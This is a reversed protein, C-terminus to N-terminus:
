ENIGINIITVGEGMLIVCSEQTHPAKYKDITQCLLVTDDLSDENYLHYKLLQQDGFLHTSLLVIYDTYAVQIPCCGTVGIGEHQWSTYNLM